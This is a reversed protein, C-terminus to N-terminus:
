KHKSSKVPGRKVAAAIADTIDMQRSAVDRPNTSWKAVNEPRGIFESVAIVIMNSVSRQESKAVAALKAHLTELLYATVQITKDEM